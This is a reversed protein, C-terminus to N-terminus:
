WEVHEFWQWQSVPIVFRGVHIVERYATKVTLWDGVTLVHSDATIIRHRRLVRRIL